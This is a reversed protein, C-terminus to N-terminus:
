SAFKYFIDTLTEKKLLKLFILKTLISEKLNELLKQQNLETENFDSDQLKWRQQLLQRM